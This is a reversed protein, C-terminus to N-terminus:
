SRTSIAFHRISCAPSARRHLTFQGASTVAARNAVREGLSHPQWWISAVASVALRACSTSEAFVHEKGHFVNLNASRQADTLHRLWATRNGRDMPAPLAKRPNVGRIILCWAKSRQPTARKIRAAVDFDRRMEPDRALLRPQLQWFIGLDM